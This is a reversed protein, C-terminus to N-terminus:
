VLVLWGLWGFAASYAGCVAVVVAKIALFINSNNDM